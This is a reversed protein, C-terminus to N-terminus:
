VNLHKISKGINLIEVIFSMKMLKNLHMARTFRAYSQVQICYVLYHLKFIFRLRM